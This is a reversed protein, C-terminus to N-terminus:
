SLIELYPRRLSRRLYAAPTFDAIAFGLLVLKGFAKRLLLAALCVPTIRFLIRSLFKSAKLIYEHYVGFPSLPFVLRRYRPPDM